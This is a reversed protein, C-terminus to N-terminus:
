LAVTTNFVMEEMPHYSSWTMSASTIRHLHSAAFGVVEGLAVLGLNRMASPALGYSGLLLTAVPSVIYPMLSGLNFGGWRSRNIDEIVAASRAVGDLTELIENTINRAEDMAYVQDEFKSSLNDTTTM